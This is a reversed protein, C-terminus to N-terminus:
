EDHREQFLDVRNAALVAGLQHRFYADLEPGQRADFRQQQGRNELLQRRFARRGTRCKQDVLYCQEGLAFRTSALELQV